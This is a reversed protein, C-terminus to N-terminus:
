NYQVSIKFDNYIIYKDKVRQWEETLKVNLSKYIKESLIVKAAFLSNQYQVITEFIKFFKNLEKNEEYDNCINNIENFIDDAKKSLNNLTFGIKIFNNSLIFNLLINTGDGIGNKLISIILLTLIIIFIIFYFRSMKKSIKSTFLSSEHINALLKIEGKIIEGNDYFRSSDFNPIRRQDFSNDILFKQHIIHANDFYSDSSYSFIYAVLLLLVTIILFTKSEFIKYYNQLISLFLLLFSIINEACSCIKSKKFDSNQPTNNEM